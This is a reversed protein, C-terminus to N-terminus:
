SQISIIICCSSSSIDHFTSILGFVMSQLSGHINCPINHDTGETNNDDDVDDGNDNNISLRTITPLM